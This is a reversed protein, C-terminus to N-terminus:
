RPYSEKIEVEVIWAAEDLIAANYEEAAKEADARHLYLSLSDARPNGYEDMTDIRSHMPEETAILYAKM